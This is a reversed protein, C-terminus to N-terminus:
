GRAVLTIYCESATDLLVCCYIATYILISCYLATYILISCHVDTCLLIYCYVATRYLTWAVPWPSESHSYIYICRWEIYEWERRDERRLSVFTVNQKGPFVFRSPTCTKWHLCLGTDTLDAVVAVQSDTFLSISVVAPTQKPTKKKFRM